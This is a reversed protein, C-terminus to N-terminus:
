LSRRVMKFLYRSAQGLMVTNDGEYTPVPSCNSIIQTFASHASYGAGGCARRSVEQKEVVEESYLSKFGALIHHMSDMREFKGNNIDKIM